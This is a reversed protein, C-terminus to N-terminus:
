INVIALILCHCQEPLTHQITTLNIGTDSKDVLSFNIPNFIQVIEETKSISQPSVRVVKPRLLTDGHLVDQIPFLSIQM